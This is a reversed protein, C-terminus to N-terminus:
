SIATEQHGKGQECSQPPSIRSGPLLLANSKLGTQHM